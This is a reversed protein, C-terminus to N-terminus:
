GGPGSQPPKPDTPRTAEARAIARGRRFAYLFAFVLQTPAWLYLAWEPHDLFLALAVWLFVDPENFDLLRRALFLTKRATSSPVDTRADVSRGMRCLIATQLWKAYGTILMGALAVLAFVFVLPAGTRKYAAWALCAFMLTFGFYDSVKDYYSGAESGRGRYRALQGDACDATLSLNLLIAAAPFAWPAPVLLALSGAAILVNSLHTLRDPTVWPLDAVLALLLAASPRGFVVGWFDENHRDAGIALGGRLADLRRVLGM